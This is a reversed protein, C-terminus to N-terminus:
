LDGKIDKYAVKIKGDTHYADTDFFVLSGNDDQLVANFKGGNFEFHKKFVVAMNPEIKISEPINM